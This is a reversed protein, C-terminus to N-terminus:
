WDDTLRRLKAKLGPLRQDEYIGTYAYRWLSWALNSHSSRINYHDYQWRRNNTAKGIKLWTGRFSFLYIGHANEPLPLPRHPACLAEITFASAPISVRQPPNAAVLRFGAVVAKLQRLQGRAAVSGNAGGTRRSPHKSMM